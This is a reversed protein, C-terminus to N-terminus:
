IGVRNLLDGLVWEAAFHQEAIRRAAAAHLDWDATVAGVAEAAQEVTRFSLLGAGTPLMRAFGTDQVVVPRGAALYCASRDSFWGTALRVNLDKAVSFEGRSARIFARYREADVSLALPDCVEWGHRALLERDGAVKDVDLAMEFRARSSHPLSLFRLWEDRKSWSYREGGLVQVRRREDWRGITTFAADAPLATPQWQALAIPQRTPLWQWRSAPIACDPQGINEGITAHAEYDGLLLQLGRDREAEIQTVGPDLDIFLRRRGIWRPLRNVAALSILLRAEDLAARTAERSCGHWEDRQADWFAWREGFGHRAFLERAFALAPAEVAGMAGSRPDYCEPYYATDEYFYPDFGLARLGLLYHLTQWAYGGLPCRVVYGAVIVIDAAM